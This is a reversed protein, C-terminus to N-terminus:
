DLHSTCNIIHVIHKGNENLTFDSVSTNKLGEWSHLESIPKNHIINLFAKKTGGHSVVLVTQEKHLHYIEDLFDKVRGILQEDTEVGELPGNRKERSLYPQGEFPGYSRERIREDLNLELGKHFRIIEKATDVARKLDSSYVADFHLNKFRLGLKRAQEVGLDTLKGQTQGQCIRNVNDVTEGHRVVILRM